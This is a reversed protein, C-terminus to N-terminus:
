SNGPHCRDFSRHHTLLINAKNLNKLGNIPQDEILFFTYTITFRTRQAWAFGEVMAGQWENETEECSM